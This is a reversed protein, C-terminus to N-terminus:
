IASARRGVLWFTETAGKGKLEVLGRREVDFPGELRRALDASLHIRGPESTTELRSATNVTDGWVDYAFKSTGVVGAVIPGAHIGIRIRWGDRASREEALKVMRLAADAVAIEGARGDGALGGVALYADGVTKIKDVGVDDCIADFGSFLENLKAVLEAPATASSITTFGVIDSFLVTVDDHGDAILTEGANLRDIIRQPLVNLLLQHSRAREVELDRLLGSLITSNTGQFEEMRQVNAELRHLKRQLIRNERELDGPPLDAEAM